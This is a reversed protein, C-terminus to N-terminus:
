FKKYLKNDDYVIHGYQRYLVVDESQMLEEYHKVFWKIVEPDKCNKIYTDYIIDSFDKSLNQKKSM